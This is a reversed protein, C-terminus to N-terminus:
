KVQEMVTVRAFRIGKLARKHNQPDYGELFAAKADRRSYRICSCIPWDPRGKTSIRIPAWLRKEIAPASM